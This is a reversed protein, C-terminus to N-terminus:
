HPIPLRLNLGARRTQASGIGTVNATSWLEGSAGIEIRM